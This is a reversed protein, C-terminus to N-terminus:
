CSFSVTIITIQKKREESNSTPQSAGEVEKQKNEIMEKAQTADNCWESYDESAKDAKELSFM